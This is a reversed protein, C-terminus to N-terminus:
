RWIRNVPPSFNAIVHFQVGGAVTGSTVCQSQPSNATLDPTWRAHLAVSIPDGFSLSVGFLWILFSCIERRSLSLLKGLLVSVVGERKM